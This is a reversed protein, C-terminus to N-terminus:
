RHALTRRLGPLGLRSLLRTLFLSTLSGTLLTTLLGALWHGLFAM